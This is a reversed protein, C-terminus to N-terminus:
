KARRVMSANTGVMNLEDGVEMACDRCMEVLNTGNVELAIAWQGPGIPCGAIGCTDGDEFQVQRRVIKWM